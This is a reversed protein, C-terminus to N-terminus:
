RKSIMLVQNPYILNPDTITTKNQEYLEQWTMNYLAAIKSLTDGKKVIYTTTQSERSPIKIIQNPYILNPNAINNYQALVQYTTQYRKAIGSLTDGSKVIYIIDSKKNPETLNSSNKMTYDKYVKNLDVRGSIGNVQGNSTYQWIAYEGNFSPQDVNWHAVWIEYNRLQELNLRTQFWYASAYIGARYGHKEIEELYAKVVNTLRNRGITVQNEKSCGEQNINHNDEVDLFVPLDIKKNQIFELTKRAEEKAEEETYACSYWYVGVPIQVSQFGQYHREFEQDKRKAKQIGYGTFGVRLIAAEIGSEKVKQYDINSQFESIDIATM